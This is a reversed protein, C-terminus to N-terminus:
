VEDLGLGFVEVVKNWDKEAQAKQYDRIDKLYEEMKATDNGVNPDVQQQPDFLRGQNTMEKRFTDGVMVQERAIKDQWEQMRAVADGTGAIAVDFKSSAEAAANGAKNLEKEAAEMARGYTEGTIAGRDLLRSLEEQTKAFKEQPTAYQETIQKAKEEMKKKAELGEKMQLLGKANNLEAGTLGELQLKYLQAAESGLGFTQISSLMETNFKATHDQLKEMAKTQLELAKAKGEETTPDLAQTEKMKDQLIKLAKRGAELMSQQDALTSKKAELEQKYGAFWNHPKMGESSDTLKKMEATAARVSGEYTAVAQAAKLIQAEAFSKKEAPDTMADIAKAKGEADKVVNAAIKSQLTAGEASLANFKTIAANLGGFEALLIAAGIALGAIGLTLLGTSTFAAGVVAIMLKFAVIAVNIGPGMLGIAILVPGIAAALVTMTIITKQTGESLGSWAAVASKVVEVMWMVNPILKEGINIAAVLVHNRMVKVQNWFSEMQIAAADTTVGLAKYVQEQRKMEASMGILPLIARQSLAHMGLKLLLEKKAEGGLGKFANELKGIADAFHIFNGKGDTIDINMDKWLQKHQIFSKTLLRIARGTMSGAHEAQINKTAYVGIIAGLTELSGGYERVAVAADSTFAAAVKAATTPTERGVNIIVDAMREFNAAFVEPITSMTGFAAMSGVALRIATGLDFAGAQAFKAVIPLAAMSREADLGASALEEYGKALEAPSFAVAGSMSLSKALDEMQKRVEPTQRGMKAFAETMNQDFDGFAKVSMGGMAVLPLTISRTLSAGVAGIKDFADQVSGQADALMKNYSSADGILRVVLRSLEQEAAM